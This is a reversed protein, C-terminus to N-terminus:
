YNNFIIPLNSNILSYNSNKTLNNWFYSKITPANNIVLNENIKTKDLYQTIKEKTKILEIDYKESPLKEILEEIEYKEKEKSFLFTLKNFNLLENKDDILYDLIKSKLLNSSYKSLLNNKLKSDFTYNSPIFILPQINKLYYNLDNPAFLYNLKNIKSRSILSLSIDQLSIRELINIKSNVISHSIKLEPKKSLILNQIKDVYMNALKTGHDHTFDHYLPQKERIQNVPNVPHLIFFLSIEEFKFFSSELIFNISQENEESGDLVILIKTKNEM